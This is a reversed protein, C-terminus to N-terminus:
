AEWFGDCCTTSLSSITALSLCAEAEQVRQKQQLEFAELGPHLLPFLFLLVYLM